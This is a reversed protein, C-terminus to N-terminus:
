SNESRFVGHSLYVVHNCFQCLDYELNFLLILTIDKVPHKLVVGVLVKSVSTHDSTWVCRQNKASVRSM